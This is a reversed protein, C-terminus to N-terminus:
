RRIGVITELIQCGELPYDNHLIQQMSSEYDACDLGGKVTHTTTASLVLRDEYVMLQGAGTIGLTCDMSAMPVWDFPTIELTAVNGSLAVPSDLRCGTGVADECFALTGTAEGTPAIQMYGGVSAETYFPCRNDDVTASTILWSGVLADMASGTHDDDTSCGAALALACAAVLSERLHTM